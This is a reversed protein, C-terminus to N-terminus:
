GLRVPLNLGLLRNFLSGSHRGHLAEAAEHANKPRRAPDRELCHLLGQAYISPLDPRVSLPPLPPEHLRRLTAQLANAGMFPRRRTLLEYALLGFCYVDTAATVPEGLLHEPAQLEPEMTEAIGPVEGMGWGSVKVQSFDNAVLIHSPQLAGHTSGAAHISQLGAAALSLLEVIKPAPLSQVDSMLFNLPSADMAEEALLIAERGSLRVEHVGLIRCLNPHTVAAAKREFAHLAEAATTGANVNLIRLTAGRAAFVQCPGDNGLPGLIEYIGAVTAGEALPNAGGALSRAGPVGHDIWEEDSEHRALLRRVAAALDPDGATEVELWADRQSPHLDAAQDFLDNIRKWRDPSVPGPTM